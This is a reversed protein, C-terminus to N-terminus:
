DFPNGASFYVPVKLKMREWYNDILICLEQARGLAFVPILVKGGRKVCDHVKNLFDKERARKSDRVTDGYTSETILVDPKLCDISASGLHRDATTNFDGTYVLSETGSRIHFMVAGLVHGAYYATIELDEDVTITQELDICRAKQMCNKIDESTFFNSEGKREITIKRYDELLLPCIARTPHSMYIPGNYGCMETFYPLSGCHDLHFHSILVCDIMADYDGNVSIFSFDPFRREDDYGQVSNIYTCKKTLRVM